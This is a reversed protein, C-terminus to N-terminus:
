RTRAAILDALLRGICAHVRDAEARMAEKSSEAFSFVGQEVWYRMLEHRQFVVTRRTMAVQEVESRYPSFNILAATMPSYQPDMLLVDIGAGQMADVGEALSVSFQEVDTGKVADATGAQWVVLTPKAQIVPGTILELKRATVVGVHTHITVEIPAEPHRRKLEAELRGPFALETRTNAKGSTSNGGVVVIKLPQNGKLAKATHYLQGEGELFGDPTPCPGAVATSAVALLLGLLAVLRIM